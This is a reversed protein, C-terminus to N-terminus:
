QIRRAFAVGIGARSLTQFANLYEALLVRSAPEEELYIVREGVGHGDTATCVRGDAKLRELDQEPLYRTEEFVLYLRGDTKQLSGIQKASVGALSSRGALQESRPADRHETSKAREESSVLLMFSFVMILIFLYAFLDKGPDEARRIQLADRRRRHM